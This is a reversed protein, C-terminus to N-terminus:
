ERRVAFKALAMACRASRAIAAFSNKHRARATPCTAITVHLLQNTLRPRPYRLLHWITLALGVCYSAMSRCGCSPADSAEACSSRQNRSYM